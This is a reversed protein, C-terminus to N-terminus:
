SLAEIIRQVRSSRPPPAPRERDGGELVKRLETLCEEHYHLVLWDHPRPYIGYGSRCNELAVYRDGVDGGCWDCLTQRM